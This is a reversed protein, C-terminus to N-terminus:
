SLFSLLDRALRRDANVASQCAPQWDRRNKVFSGYCGAASPIMPCAINFVQGYHDTDPTIWNFLVLPRFLSPVSPVEEALVALVGLNACLVATLALRFALPQIRRLQLSSPVSAQSPPKSPREWKMPM